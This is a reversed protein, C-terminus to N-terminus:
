VCVAGGPVTPVTDPLRSSAAMTVTLRARANHIPKGSSEGHHQLDYRTICQVQVYPIQSNVEQEQSDGSNNMFIWFFGDNEGEVGEVVTRHTINTRDAM